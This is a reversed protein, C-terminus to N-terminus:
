VWQYQQRESCLPLFGFFPMEEDSLSKDAIGPLINRAYTGELIADNKGGIIRFTHWAANQWLIPPSLHTHLSM